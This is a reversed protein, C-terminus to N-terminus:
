TLLVMYKIKLINSIVDKKAIYYKVLDILKSIDVPVPVLKAVDSQDIKGKLNSLNWPINKLKDIDLKDM